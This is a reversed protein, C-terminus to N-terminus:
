FMKTILFLVLYYIILYKRLEVLTEISILQISLLKSDILM